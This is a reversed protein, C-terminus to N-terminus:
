SGALAAGARVIAGRVQEASLPKNASASVSAKDVNQIPALTQCAVLAAAAALAVVKSLVQM